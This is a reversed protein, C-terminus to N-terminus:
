AVTFSANDNIIEQLYQIDFEGIDELMEEVSDQLLISQPVTIVRVEDVGITGNVFIQHDFGNFKITKM